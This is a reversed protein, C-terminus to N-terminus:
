QQLRLHQHFASPCRSSILSQGSMAARTFCSEPNFPPSRLRRRDARSDKIQGDGLLVRAASDSLGVAAPTFLGRGIKNNLRRRDPSRAKRSVCLVVHRSIIDSAEFQWQYSESLCICWQTLICNTWDASTKIEERRTFAFSGPCRPFGSCVSFYCFLVLDPGAPSQIM